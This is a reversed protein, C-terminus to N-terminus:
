IIKAATLHTPHEQFKNLKLKLRDLEIQIPKGFDRSRLIVSSAANLLESNVSNPSPIDVSISSAISSDGYGEDINEDSTKTLAKLQDKLDKNRLLVQKLCERLSVETKNKTDNFQVKLQESHFKNELSKVKRKEQRLRRILSNNAEYSLKKLRKNENMVDQMSVLKKEADTNKTKLLKYQAIMKTLQVRLQFIADEIQSQEQKSSLLTAQLTENESKLKEIGFQTKRLTDAIENKESECKEINEEMTTIIVRQKCLVNEMSMKSVETELLRQELLKLEAKTDRLEDETVELKTSVDPAILVMNKNLVDSISDSQSQVQLNRLEEELEQKEKQYRQLLEMYDTNLQKYRSNVNVITQQRQRLIEQYTDIELQLTKKGAQLGHVQSQYWKATAETASLRSNTDVLTNHLKQKEQIVSQMEVYLETIKGKLGQNAAIRANLEIQLNELDVRLRENELEQLAVRKSLEINTIDPTSLHRIQFEDTILHLSDSSTVSGLESKFSDSLQDM